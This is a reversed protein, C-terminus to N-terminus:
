RRSSFCTVEGWLKGGVCFVLPQEGWDLSKLQPTNVKQKCLSALLRDMLLLCSCALWKAGDKVVELRRLMLNPEESSHVQEEKWNM